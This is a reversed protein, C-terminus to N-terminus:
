VTTQSTLLCLDNSGHTRPALAVLDIELHQPCGSAPFIFLVKPQSGAYRGWGIEKVIKFSVRGQSHNLSWTLISHAVYPKPFAMQISM